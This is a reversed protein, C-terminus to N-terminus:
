HGGGGFGAICMGAAGAGWAIAENTAGKAISAIAMGLGVICMMQSALHHVMAMYEGLEAGFGDDMRDRAVGTAPDIEWWGLRGTGAVEIPASPGVVLLGAALADQVFPNAALATTSAADGPRLVVLEVGRQEALEFLGGVSAFSMQEPPDPVVSLTGELVMREAAHDMAGALLGAPAAADADAPPVAGHRAHLIDVTAAVQAKGDTPPATPAAWFATVSPEGDYFRPAARDGMSELRLLDRLYAFAQGMQAQLLLQDTEGSADEDFAQWPVLAPTVALLIMGALPLFQDKADDDLTVLEVPGITSLDLEGTARQVARQAASARDFVPREAHRTGGDPLALDVVLWEALAQGELDGPQGLAGGVGGGTDLAFSSGEFVQDGVLLAPVYTQQGSIAAGIGLWEATPHAVSVPTGVLDAVRLTQALLETRTPQDSQVVEVVSRVTLTHYLEDPLQDPTDTVTAYATGPQAGPVSPDLDIWQPGSAYQLWVHRDRELDPLAPEDSPLEVGAAALTSMLTAVTADARDRAQTILQDLEPARTWAGSGAWGAQAEPTLLTAAARRAADTVDLRAGDLMAAAGADDLRGIAFRTAVQAEALMSALLLAQDAASGARSRFTGTAGRMAGAYPDYAIEDAVYRFIRQTDFDLDAVVRQLDDRADGQADAARAQLLAWLPGAAAAGGMAKLFTRRDLGVDLISM